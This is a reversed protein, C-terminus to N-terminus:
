PISVLAAHWDSAMAQYGADSPHLGDPPTGDLPTYLTAFQNEFRNYLDPGLYLNDNPDDVINQEIRTNFLAIQNNPTMRPNGSGDYIPPILAIYVLDLETLAVTAIQTVNFEFAVPDTQPVTMADNTGILLLMGNAKPHRELISDIRQLMTDSSLDGGIGENFVIQPLGTSFTLEDSLQAQFGQSSVILGDMSDNNLPDEDGVGNTISDGVAIFYNGGVGVVFNIDHSLENGDADTLEATVDHQGAPVGSYQASYRNGSKVAVTENAGDLTFRVSGDAPQNLAVAEVPLANGPTVSHALPATVAIMPQLSNDSVVLNDFSARDQCYLAVTGPQIAADTVAFVLDDDILDWSIWVMITDGNIEVTVRFPLPPDEDVYGISNVGVTSFAGGQRKELRTFGYRSSMSLRYYNYADAYPFMIGIDNGERTDGNKRPIIDVSFRFRTRKAFVLPDLYAYTGLHYSEQFANRFVNNVQLLEGGVASWAVANPTDNRFIWNASTDFADTLLIKSVYVSVTDSQQAGDDDTVACSFTLTGTVPPATFNLTSTSQGALAVPAGAVQTWQHAVIVGDSDSSVATLAVANSSLTFRDQGADVMPPLNTPPNGEEGGGGGGCGSIVSAFCLLSVLCVTKLINNKSNIRESIM